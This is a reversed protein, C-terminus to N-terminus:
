IYVQLVILKFIDIWPVQMPYTAIQLDQMWSWAGFATELWFIWVDGTGFLASRFRLLIGQDKRWISTIMFHMLFISGTQTGRATFIALVHRCCGQCTPCLIKCEMERRPEAGDQHSWRVPKRMASPLLSLFISCCTEVTERSRMKILPKIRWRFYRWWFCLAQTTCLQISHGSFWTEFQDLICGAGVCSQKLFLSSLLKWSNWNALHCRFASELFYSVSDYLTKITIDNVGQDHNLLPIDERQLTALCGAHSEKWPWLQGCQANPCFTPTNEWPWRKYLNTGGRQRLHAKSAKWPQSRCSMSIQLFQSSLM